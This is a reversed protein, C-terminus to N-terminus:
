KKQRVANTSAYLQWVNDHEMEALLFCKTESYKHFKYSIVQFKETIKVKKGRVNFLTLSVLFHRVKLLLAVVHDCTSCSAHKQRVAWECRTFAFVFAFSILSFFEFMLSFKRKREM